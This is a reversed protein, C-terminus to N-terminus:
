WQRRQADRYYASRDQHYKNPPLARPAGSEMEATSNLTQTGGPERRDVPANSGGRSASSSPRYFDGRAAPERDSDSNSNHRNPLSYRPGVSARPGTPASPPPSISRRRKDPARQTSARIPGHYNDALPQSNKAGAPTPQSARPAVPPQKWTSPGTPPARSGEPRPPLPHSMAPSRSATPLALSRMSSSPINSVRSSSPGADPRALRQSTNLTKSLHKRDPHRGSPAKNWTQTGSQHGSNSSTQSAASQKWRPVERRSNGSDSTGQRGGSSVSQADEATSIPMRESGSMAVDRSGPRSVAPSMHAASSDPPLRQSRSPSEPWDSFPEDDSTEAEDSESEPEAAATAQPEPRVEEVSKVTSSEEIMAIPSPQSPSKRASTAKANWAKLLGIPVNPHPFEQGRASPIWSSPHDLLERQDRPIRHRKRPAPTSDQVTSTQPSRKAKAPTEVIVEETVLQASVPASPEPSPKRPAQGPLKSIVDLLKNKPPEPPEMSLRIQRAHLSPAQPGTLNDGRTPELGERGMSFGGRTRRLPNRPKPPPQAQMADQPLQSEIQAMSNTNPVAPSTLQHSSTNSTAALQEKPSELHTHTTPVANHAAKATTAAVEEDNASNEDEDGGGQVDDDAADDDEEEEEVDGMEEDDENNGMPIERLKGIKEQSAIISARQLLSAPQGIVKRFNGTLELDEIRLKVREESPGYTTSVVTIKKCLLLDGKRAEEGDELGKDYADWASDSLTAMISAEGDSVQMKARANSGPKQSITLPSCCTFCRANM